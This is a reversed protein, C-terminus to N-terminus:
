DVVGKPLIALYDVPALEVGDARGTIKVVDGKKIAVDGFRVRTATHGDLTYSPPANGLFDEDDGRWAGLLRGNLHVAFESRGGEGDFYGVVVDYTGDAFALTTTLSGPRSADTVNAARYGSATHFPDVAVAHYNDMDMAEAEVRWRKDGVRGKEDAIGSLNWYFNNISDRWVIAHGAQYTLRYLVAEYRQDDVSGKLSKWLPVFGDATEAGAYHADYFHQIVTKGTSLKHTYGVHHFWLLLEEPTTEINEFRAAVEPPYQGAFKTGNKVTRDMGLSDTDARTWQGWPNNDMSEPKPGYHQGTIDALTQIGLNGSYNEYAPWSDMNMQVITDVVHENLGFTLRTWDRLMSEPDDYPNWAMRGYAYLNAMSLHSGLWTNDLGVNSVGASGAPAKGFRRGSVVDGVKTTKGGHRLDFDLITKWLPALYVLHNQQGLYEQTIQLEISLRTNPMNAFLPSAPERVQFDIPGYKIQVVVNEELEGDHKALYDVAANARDDYWNNEDLTQYNYVFARFMVLGDYPQVARAFVNAADALTRGISLPGPQGESSAKVLYGILDPTRKYIKATIDNWFKIVDEKLPDYTELGGFDKPSAFNVSIGVRVGYPRMADAIRGIGEINEDSLINVNANVNNIIVGNVRISALLRAYQAVRKMDKVVVGNAFFISRGGYGREITGDLNDWENTFRIQQNPVETATFDSYNGVALRSLYEFAGYLAGPEDVGLIVVKYEGKQGNSIYFSGPELDKYAVDVSDAGEFNEFTGVFIKDGGATSTNEAENNVEVKVGFMSELGLKLEQGATYVPSNATGNIAVVTSPLPLRPMHNAGPPAYRLWADIGTEAAALGCFIFWFSRM